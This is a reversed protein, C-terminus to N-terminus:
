DATAKGNGRQEIWRLRRLSLPWLECLACKDARVDGEHPILHVLVLASASLSPGILLMLPRTGPASEWLSGTSLLLKLEFDLLWRLPMLPLQLTLADLITMPVLLVAAALWFPTSITVGARNARRAWRLLWETQQLSGVWEKWAALSEGYLSIDDGYRIDTM